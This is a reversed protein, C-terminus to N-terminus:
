KLLSLNIGFMFVPFCCTGIVEAIASYARNGNKKRFSFIVLARGYDRRNEKVMGWLAMPIEVLGLLLVLIAVALRAISVFSFILTACAVFCWALFFGKNIYYAKHIAGSQFQTEFWWYNQFGKRKKKRSIQFACYLGGRFRVYKGIYVLLSVINFFLFM